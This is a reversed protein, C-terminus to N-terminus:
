YLQFITNCNIEIAAFTWQQMTTLLTSQAQLYLRKRCTSSPQTVLNSLSHKIQFLTFNNVKTINHNETSTPLIVNNRYEALM